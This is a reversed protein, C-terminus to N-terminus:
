FVSCLVEGGIGRKRAQHDSMIGQSTSLIVVGYGSHSRPIEDTPVYMRKGPRSIRAINKIVPLGAREYKLGIKLQKKNRGSDYVEYSDIFGEDRLVNLVQERLQSHPCSTTIHGANQANRIHTILTGIPDTTM